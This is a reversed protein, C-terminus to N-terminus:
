KYFFANIGLFLGFQGGIQAILNSLNTEPVETIKEFTDTDYYINVALLSSKYDNSDILKKNKILANNALVKEYFLSPYDSSSLSSVRYTVQECEQPCKNNDDICFNRSNILCENTRTQNCNNKIYEDRCVNLCSHRAYNQKSNISLSSDICDSYPYSLKQKIIRNLALNTLSGPPLEVIPDYDNMPTTQNNIFLILGSVSSLPSFYSESLGIFLELQLGYEPGYKSSNRIDSGNKGSNFSYCNGYNDNNIFEFDSEFCRVGKFYCNILMDKLEFRVKNLESSNVMQLFENKILDFSERTDLGSVNYEKDFLSNALNILDDNKSLDFQNLNCFTIMPFPSSSEQILEFRTLVKYEYFDKISSTLIKGCYILSAILCGTWMIKFIKQENSVINPIAHITTRKSFNKFKERLKIRTKDKM